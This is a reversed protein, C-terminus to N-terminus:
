LAAFLDTLTSLDTEYKLASVFGALMFIEPLKEMMNGYPHM